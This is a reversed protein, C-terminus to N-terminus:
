PQAAPRKVGGSLWQKMPALLSTTVTTKSTVPTAKTVSEAEPLDVEHIKKEDGQFVEIKWTPKVPEAPVEATVPGQLFESFSPKAPEEHQVVPEPPAVPVPAPQPVPEAKPRHDDSLEAQLDALQAEDTGRSAVHETDEISRLTLHITGKSEALKVIEAQLPTVLLSVNKVDKSPGKTEVPEVGMKLDGMAFVQIYELITKTFSQNKSGARSTNYTLVVDVRDGPKMIGSHIMTATVPVTILRMGKPIEISTGYVGKEGLQALLIVQGGYARTKLAREVYQEEEFIAGEPVADIPLEKFAVLEQTLPLGVGVDTRAVLVRKTEVKPGRNAAMMQQAAVMAVLGCGAAVAFLILSKPKM